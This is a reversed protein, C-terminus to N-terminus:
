SLAGHRDFIAEGDRLTLDARTDDRIAEPAAAFIDRSLVALDALMGPELTGRRDEAFQTYAGCWSQCHIAQEITLAQDPGMLTGRNTRRTLMAYLNVFPDV